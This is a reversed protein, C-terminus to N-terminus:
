GRVLFIQSVLWVARPARAGVYKINKNPKKYLFYNRIERTLHLSYM